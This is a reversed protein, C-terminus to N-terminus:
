QKLVFSYIRGAVYVEKEIAKGEIYSTVAENERVILAVDEESADAPVNAKARVKGNIQIPIEIYNESLKSEDYEPWKAEYLRGAYGAEQWIEETVHPAVPNLLILFDRLEGRTISGAKYIENAAKMMAAIATNFKLNEFDYSVKKILSHM